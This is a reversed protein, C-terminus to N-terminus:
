CRTAAVGNVFLDTTALDPRGDANLDAATIATPSDGSAFPTPGSFTPPAAAAPTGLALAAAASAAGIACRTAFAHSGM